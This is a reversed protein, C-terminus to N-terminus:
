DPNGRQYDYGYIIRLYEKNRVKMCHVADTQSPVNPKICIGEYNADALSNFYKHIVERNGTVSLMGSELGSDGEMITQLLDYKSSVVGMWHEDVMFTEDDYDVRLIDFPKYDLEGDAAYISLQNTYAALDKENENIDHSQIHELNGYTEYRPFNKSLEKKSM